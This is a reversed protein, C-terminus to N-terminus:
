TLARPRAGLVPPRGQPRLGRGRGRCHSRTSGQLCSNWRSQTSGQSISWCVQGSHLNLTRPSCHPSPSKAPEVQNGGSAERGTTEGGRRCPVAVGIILQGAPDRCAPLPGQRGAQARPVWFLVAAPPLVSLGTIPPPIPGGRRLPLAGGVCMWVLLPPGGDGAQPHVAQVQCSSLRGQPGQRGDQAPLVWSGPCADPSSPTPLAAMGLARPAGQGPQCPMGSPQPQLPRTRHTNIPPPPDPSAGDPRPPVRSQGDQPCVTTLAIIHFRSAGGSGAQMPGKPVPPSPDRPRDLQAGKQPRAPVLPRLLWRARHKEMPSCTASWSVQPWLTSTTCKGPDDM